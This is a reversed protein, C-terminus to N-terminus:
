KTKFSVKFVGMICMLFFMAVANVFTYDIHLAPFLTNLAWLTILPSIFVAITLAIVVMIGASFGLLKLLDTM